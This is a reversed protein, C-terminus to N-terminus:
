WDENIEFGFILLFRVLPLFQEADFVDCYQTFTTKRTVHPSLPTSLRSVIM